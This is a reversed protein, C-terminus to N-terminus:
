AMYTDQPLNEFAKGSQCQNAWKHKKSYGITPSMSLRRSTLWAHFYTVGDFGPFVGEGYKETLSAQTCYEFEKMPFLNLFHWLRPYECNNPAKSLLKPKKNRDFKNNESKVLRQWIINSGGSQEGGVVGSLRYFIDSSCIETIDTIDSKLLVVTRDVYGSTVLIKVSESTVGQVFGCFDFVSSAVNARITQGRRINDFAIM